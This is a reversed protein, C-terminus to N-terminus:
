EAERVRVFSAFRPLGSPTRERYRYTVWAGVPPPDRRLADSLGAGLAFRQGSTMQVLLAGTMGVLRGKGPQHGVVLGEEDHEPTFKFLADTRGAQWLADSRHLMLGEGGQRVTDLLLAQLASADKVELQAVPMLWPQQALALTSQLFAVRQAFPAARGPADFVMYKVARWAEDDPETQRVAGSLRDFTGRGLWLEGDLAVRPLASLFWGPAAIVRGSRFRLVQGDWVARVGDFKESVLFGVPSRGPLWPMALQVAGHEGSAVPGVSKAWVSPMLWPSLFLASLSTRRSLSPIFKLPQRM